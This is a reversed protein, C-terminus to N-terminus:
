WKARWHQRPLIASFDDCSTAASPTGSHDYRSDAQEFRPADVLDHGPEGRAVQLLNDLERKPAVNASFETKTQFAGPNDCRAAPRQIRSPIRCSEAGGRM